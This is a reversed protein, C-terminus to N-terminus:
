DILNNIVSDQFVRLLTNWSFDSVSLKSMSYQLLKDGNWSEHWLARNHIKLCKKEKFSIWKPLTWKHNWIILKWSVISFSFELAKETIDEFIVDVQDIKKEFKELWTFDKIFIKLMNQYKINSIRTRFVDSANIKWWYTCDKWMETIITTMKSLRHDNTWAVVKFHFEWSKHFSLYRVRRTQQEDWDNLILYCEFSPFFYIDGNFRDIRTKWLKYFDEGDKILFYYQVAKPTVRKKNKWM